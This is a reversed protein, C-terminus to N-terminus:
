GCSGLALRDLHREVGIGVARELALDARDAGAGARLERQQRRLVGAAVPDLHHLAHREPHLEVSPWSRGGSRVPMLALTSTSVPWARPRGFTTARVSAASPSPPWGATAAGARILAAAEAAAAGATGATALLPSIVTEIMSAVIMCTSSVVIALTASGEICPESPAACSWIM